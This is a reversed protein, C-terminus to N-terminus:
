NKCNVMLGMLGWVIALAAWLYNLSANWGLYQTLAVLVGLLVPGGVMTMKSNMKKM